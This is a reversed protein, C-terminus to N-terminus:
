RCASPLGAFTVPRVWQRSAPIGVVLNVVGAVTELGDSLLMLLLVAVCAAAFGRALPLWGRGPAAM